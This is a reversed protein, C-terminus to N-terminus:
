DYRNGGYHASIFPALRRPRTPSAQSSQLFFFSFSLFISSAPLFFTEGQTKTHMIRKEWSPPIRLKRLMDAHKERWRLIRGGVLEGSTKRRESEASSKHSQLERRREARM